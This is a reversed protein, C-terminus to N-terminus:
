LKNISKMLQGWDLFNECNKHDVKSLYYVNFIAYKENKILFNLLDMLIM